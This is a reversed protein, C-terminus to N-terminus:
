RGYWEAKKMKFKQEKLFGYDHCVLRGNELHGFNEEKLDTLISPVKKPLLKEHTPYTRKQILFIGCGSISKCPALWKKLKGSARGWLEWEGTNQFYGGRDEVKVVYKPNPLWVYVNRSIGNGLKDGLCLSRLDRSIITPFSEEM